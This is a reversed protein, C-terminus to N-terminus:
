GGAIINVIEWEDPEFTTDVKIGDLIDTLSFLEIAASKLERSVVLTSTKSNISVLKEVEDLCLPAVTYGLKPEARM